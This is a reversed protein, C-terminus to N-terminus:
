ADRVEAEEEVLLEPAVVTDTSGYAAEARAVIGGEMGVTEGGRLVRRYRWECVVESGMAKSRVVTRSPLGYPNEDEPRLVYLEADEGASISSELELLREDETQVPDQAPPIIVFGKSEMEAVLTQEDSSLARGLGADMADEKSLSLSLDPM